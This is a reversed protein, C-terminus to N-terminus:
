GMQCYVFTLPVSTHDDHTPKRTKLKEAASMDLRPARADAARIPHTERRGMKGLGIFARSLREAYPYLTLVESLVEAM